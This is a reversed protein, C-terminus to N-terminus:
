FQQREATFKLYQKSNMQFPHMCNKTTGPLHEDIQDDKVGMDSVKQVAITNCIGGWHFPRNWAEYFVVM